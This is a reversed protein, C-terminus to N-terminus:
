YEVADGKPSLIVPKANLAQLDFTYGEYAYDSLDLGEAGPLFPQILHFRLGDSSSSWTSQANQYRKAYQWQASFLAEARAIAVKRHGNDQIGRFISYGGLVIGMLALAVVM